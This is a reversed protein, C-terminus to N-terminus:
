NLCAVFVFFDEFLNRKLDPTAKSDERWISNRQKNFVLPADEGTFFNVLEKWEYSFQYRCYWRVCLLNVEAENHPLKFPDSNRTM